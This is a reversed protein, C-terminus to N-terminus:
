LWRCFIKVNLSFILLIGYFVTVGVYYEECETQIHFYKTSYQCDRLVSNYNHIINHVHGLTAVINRTTCVYGLCLLCSIQPDLIVMFVPLLKHELIDVITNSSISIIITIIIIMVFIDISTNITIFSLPDCWNFKWMSYLVFVFMIM